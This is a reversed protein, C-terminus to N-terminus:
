GEVKETAYDFDEPRATGEYLALEIAEMCMEPFSLMALQSQLTGGAIENAVFTYADAVLDDTFAPNPRM